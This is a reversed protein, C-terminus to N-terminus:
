AVRQVGGATVGASIVRFGELTSDSEVQGAQAPVEEAGAM